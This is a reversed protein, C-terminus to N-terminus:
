RKHCGYSYSRLLFKASWFSPWSWQGAVGLKPDFQEL